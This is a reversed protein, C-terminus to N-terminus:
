TEPNTLLSVLYGVAVIYVHLIKLDILHQKTRVGSVQFWIAMAIKDFSPRSKYGTDALENSVGSVQFRVGFLRPYCNVFQYHVWNAFLHKYRFFFLGFPM